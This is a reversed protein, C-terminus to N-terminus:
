PESKEEIRKEILETFDPSLEFSKGAGSHENVCTAVILQFCFEAQAKRDAFTKLNQTTEKSLKIHETDTNTDM